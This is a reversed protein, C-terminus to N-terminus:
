REAGHRLLIATIEAHQRREAWALPTAWPEDDPLHAPAGRDLLFRVMDVFGSRAAWALPTSGYELDRASLDAGADILISARELADSAGSMIRRKTRPQQCVHHLLTQRQWNMLDASMGHALLTRLMDTHTLLYTQCGTLVPPVRLGASLLRALRDRRGDSVVMAFGAAARVAEGPDNAVRALEADDDAWRSDYPDITGGHAGVLARIATSSTSTMANGSSDVASNPDAHHALLLKVMAVNDMSSAAQLSRGRPATPEPWNPDAGRELLLRAVDEHGGEVATSLPRRGSPRTEHIRAPEADLMQRVRDIDGLASAITLDYTAGHDLLLTIIRREVPQDTGHWVAIDIAQLDRWFGGGVSKLGRASSVGMHVNAGRNLLLAALTFMGRRVTRHLPSAGAANGTHVLSPDADLLLRVADVDNAAIAAHLPHDDDGSLVRVRCARAAELLRAIALHGRDRAM